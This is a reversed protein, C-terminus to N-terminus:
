VDDCLLLMGQKKEKRDIALKFLNNEEANIKLAKYFIIQAADAHLFIAQKLKEFLQKCASKNETALNQEFFDSVKKHDKKLYAYSDM